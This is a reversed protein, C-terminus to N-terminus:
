AKFGHFGGKGVLIIAQDDTLSHKMHFRSHWKKPLNELENRGSQGKPLLWVTNETSFRKALALTKGLPAFARASIVDCDFSNCNELRMHAVTVRNGLDFKDVGRQLYECRKRRSKVLTFHCPALFALVLGPFGAGTGLDLWQQDAKPQEGLFQLLQVSDMIHRAWIHGITSASILNQHQAEEVVFACFAELQEMTEHSVGAAERLWMKADDESIM